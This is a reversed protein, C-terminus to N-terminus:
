EEILAYRGGSGEGEVMVAVYIREKTLSVNLITGKCILIEVNIDGYEDLYVTADEEESEGFKKAFAGVLKELDANPDRMTRSPHVSTMNEAKVGMLANHLREKQEAAWGARGKRSEEALIGMIISMAATLRGQELLLEEQKVLRGNM